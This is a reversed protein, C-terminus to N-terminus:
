GRDFLIPNGSRWFIPKKIGVSFYRSEVVETKGIGIRGLVSLLDGLDPHVGRCSYYLTSQGHEKQHIQLWDTHDPLAEFLPGFDVFRGFSDVPFNNRHPVFDLRIKPLGCSCSEVRDGLIVLDDCPRSPKKINILNCSRTPEPSFFMPLFHREGSSCTYFNVGSGWDVMQDRTPCSPRRFCPTSDTNVFANVRHRSEASMTSFYPSCTLGLWVCPLACINIPGFESFLKEIQDFMCDVHDRASWDGVIQFDYQPPNRDETFLPFKLGKSYAVLLTKYRSMRLFGEVMLRVLQFNPGFDYKRRVGASSGSSLLSKSEGLCRTERWMAYVKRVEDHYSHFDYDVMCKFLDEFAKVTQNRYYQKYANVLNSM